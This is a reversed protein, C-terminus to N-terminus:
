EPRINAAKIIPWWKEIEARQLTALAQPTQQDRPAIELGLDALRRRVAGDALASVTAANLKALVDGPLGKPGYLGYWTSMHFGPLGAEEVTPIEPASALRTSATVAFAKIKGSQLFPLCDSAVDIMLDIQGAMVDQLAPAAGRYPVLQFRVGASQQFLIGGLHTTTGAGATGASAKDPNGKLWDILERLNRAPLAANAVIVHPNSSLLAIPDLDKVLDYPLAYIAGNLVLTGLFGMGFTYGDPPARAVRGTGITGAAGTVNEVIVPQGLSLRMPEALIRSITDLPGGAALPVVMTLPRSPYPQASAPSVCIAALVIAILSFLARTKM